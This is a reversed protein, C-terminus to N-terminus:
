EVDSDCVGGQAYCKVVKGDKYYDIVAEFFDPNTEWVDYLDNQSEPSSELDYGNMTALIDFKNTGRAKTFSM